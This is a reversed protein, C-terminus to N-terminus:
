PRLSCNAARLSQAAGSNDLAASSRGVVQQIRQLFRPCIFDHYNKKKSTKRQEQAAGTWGGGRSGLHAAVGSKTM